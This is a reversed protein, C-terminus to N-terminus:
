SKMQSIHALVRLEIQSYDASIFYNNPKSPIFMKRIERGELVFQFIKYIRNMSSLRGTATLAQQYITHVM